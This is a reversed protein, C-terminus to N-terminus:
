SAQSAFQSAVESMLNKITENQEEQIRFFKEMMNEMMSKLNPKNKHQQHFTNM